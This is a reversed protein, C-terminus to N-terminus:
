RPNEDRQHAKEQGGHRVSGARRADVDGAELPPDVPLLHSGLLDLEREDLRAAAAAVVARDRRGLASGVLEVVAVVAARALGTDPDAGVV